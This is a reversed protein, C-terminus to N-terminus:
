SCRKRDNNSKGIWQEGILVPVQRYECAPECPRKVAAVLYRKMFTRTILDDIGFLFKDLNNWYKDELPKIHPKSLNHLFVAIPDFSNREAISTVVDITLQKDWIVKDTSLSLYLHKLANPSIEQGEVEIMRTRINFMPLGGLVLKDGGILIQAEYPKVKRVAKVPEIGRDVEVKSLEEEFKKSITM